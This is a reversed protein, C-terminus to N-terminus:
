ALANTWDKFFATSTPSWDRPVGRHELQWFFPAEDGQLSGRFRRAWETDDYLLPGKDGNDHIARRYEAYKSYRIGQGEGLAQMEKQIRRATEIVGTEASVNPGVYHGADDLNLLADHVASNQKASLSWLRKIGTIGLPELADMFKKHAVSRFTETRNVLIILPEIASVRWEPGFAGRSTRMGQWGLKRRIEAVVPSDTRSPPGVGDEIALKMEGMRGSTIYKALAMLDEPTCAPPM